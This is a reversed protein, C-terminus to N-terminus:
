FKCHNEKPTIEELMRQKDTNDGTFVGDIKATIVNNGDKKELETNGKKHFKIKADFIDKKNNDITRIRTYVNIKM